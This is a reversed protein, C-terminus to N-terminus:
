RLDARMRASLLDVAFALVVLAAVTTVMGARDFAANQQSLIRGLGGAGV